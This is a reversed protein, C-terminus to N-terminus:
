RCKSTLPALFGKALYFVLCPLQNPVDIGRAFLTNIKKSGELDAITRAVKLIRYFGRPSLAGKRVSEKLIELGSEELLCYKKIQSLGMESNTLINEKKFRQAQIKRTFVVKERIEKSLNEKESSILDEFPIYPLEVFLDIRDIIPGSL